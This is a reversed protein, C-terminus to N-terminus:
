SSFLAVPVLVLVLLWTMSAMGALLACSLREMLSQLEMDVEMFRM